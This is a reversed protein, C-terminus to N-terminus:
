QRADNIRGTESPNADPPKLPARALPSSIRGRNETALGFSYKLCISANRICPFDFNAASNLQRRIQLCDTPREFRGAPLDSERREGLHAQELGPPIKRQRVSM